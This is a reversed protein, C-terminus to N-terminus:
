ELKKLDNKILTVKKTQNLAKFPTLFLSILFNFKESLENIFNRKSKNRKKVTLQEWM